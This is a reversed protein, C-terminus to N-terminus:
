RRAKRTRQIKKYQNIVTIQINNQNRLSKRLLSIQKIENNVKCVPIKIEEDCFSVRDYYNSKLDVGFRSIHFKDKELSRRLSKLMEKNIAM